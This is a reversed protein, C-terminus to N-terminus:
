LNFQPTIGPFHRITTPNNAPIEATSRTASSTVNTLVIEAQPQQSALNPTLHPPPPTQVYVTCKPSAFYYSIDPKAQNLCPQATPAHQKKTPRAGQHGGRVWCSPLLSPWKRHSVQSSIHLCISWNLPKFSKVRVVYLKPM